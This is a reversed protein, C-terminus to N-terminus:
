HHKLWSICNNICTICKKTIVLTFDRVKHVMILFSIGWIEENVLFIRLSWIFPMGLYYKDFLFVDRFLLFLSM